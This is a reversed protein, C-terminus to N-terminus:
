YNLFSDYLDLHIVTNEEKEIQKQIIKLRNIVDKRSFEGGFPFHIYRKHANEIESKIKTSKGVGAKDSYIIEVNENYLKQGEKKKDDHFLPQHGRLKELYKVLSDNKESYAFAVCSKMENAGSNFLTNILKTLTQRKESTLQEIKGIMFFVPYECLFARYMFATIEESTTEENCLLLTQAMPPHGTLFNFWNLIHEEIGKQLEGIKDGELLYTFLGIFNKKYKDKIINQKYIEELKLNNNKLFDALFNKINEFLCVYKDENLEYDYNYNLEELKKNSNVQDNTLYKLFPVLANNRERRLCSNILNFQRGYVYRILEENKYYKTQIDNIKNILNDLYADCNKYNEIRKDDISFSPKDDNIDIVIKLNESYGKHGLKSLLQNIKEIEGVRESFSKYLNFIKKEEQSQEDGLKRTLMARERLEIINEYNLKKKENQKELNISEGEFKLYPDKNNDISLTFQSQFMIEKIQQQTAQSKDLKKSFLEKIERSRNTYKLFHVSINKVKPVENIFAQILEVDTKKGKIQGLNHIFTSCKTMDQIDNNTILTDDQM